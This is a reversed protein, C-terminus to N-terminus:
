SASSIQSLVPRVSACQGRPDVRQDDGAAGLARDDPLLTGLLGDRRHRGGGDPDSRSRRRRRAPQQQRHGGSARQEVARAQAAHQARDLDRHLATLIVTRRALLDARLELLMVAGPREPRGSGRPSGRCGPARIGSGPSASSHAKRRSGASTSTTPLGFMSRRMRVGRRGAGPSVSVPLPKSVSPPPLPALWATAAARWPARTAISPATPCSAWPAASSAASCASPM